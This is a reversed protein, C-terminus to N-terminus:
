IKKAYPHEIEVFWDRNHMTETLLAEYADALATNAFWGLSGQIFMQCGQGTQMRVGDM